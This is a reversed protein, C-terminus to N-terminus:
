ASAGPESGEGDDDLSHTEAGEMTCKGEFVVGKDVFLQPAHIDGHVEGPAHLEVLQSARVNGRLVGGRVILTGVEVEARVDAGDGLILVDESFIRGEFKGDLRVRGQFTLKGEFETGRGLLANIEGRGTLDQQSMPPSVM